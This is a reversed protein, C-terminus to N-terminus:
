RISGFVFLITAVNVTPGVPMEEPGFQSPLPNPVMQVLTGFAVDITRISAIVLLSRAVILTGTATVGHPLKAKVAVSTQVWLQPPTGVMARISGAVFVTAPTMRGAPGTDAGTTISPAAHTETSVLGAASLYRALSEGSWSATSRASAGPGSKPPPPSRTTAAPDAQTMSPPFSRTRRRGSASKEGLQSRRVCRMADVPSLDSRAMPLTM